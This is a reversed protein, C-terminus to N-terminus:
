ELRTPGAITVGSAGHILRVVVFENPSAPALGIETVVLGAERVEPPNTEADCKVYFAEEETGGKLAGRRFLDSLYAGLEREVRVWLRFDNPEFVFGAVAREIWRGATLFLRRVSVYTWEAQEQGALTRAGWVRIGRGPFARLCNVGAQNLPGQQADTLNVALDLVGALEENAPAKHVGTRGDSRAYVGAVHGCPPVFGQTSAPGGPVRIWPFYLAGNAGKLGQRQELVRQADADPLSDLIAFRDGAKDCHDLVRQQLATVQTSNRMIDPACVLDVTDL